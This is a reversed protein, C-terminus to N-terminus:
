SILFFFFFTLNMDADLLSDQGSRVVINWMETKGDREALDKFQRDSEGSRLYIQCM